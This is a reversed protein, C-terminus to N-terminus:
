LCQSAGNVSMFTRSPTPLKVLKESAAVIFSFRTTAEKPSDGGLGVAPIPTLHFLCSTYSQSYARGRSTACLLVSKRLSLDDKLLM